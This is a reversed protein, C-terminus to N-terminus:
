AQQQRRAGREASRPRFRGHAFAVALQRNCFKRVLVIVSVNPSASLRLSARLAPMLTGSPRISFIFPLFTRTTRRNSLAPFVRM